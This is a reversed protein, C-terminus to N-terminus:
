INRNSVEEIGLSYRDMVRLGNLPLRILTTLINVHTAGDQGQSPTTGRRVRLLQCVSRGSDLRHSSGEEIGERTKISLM